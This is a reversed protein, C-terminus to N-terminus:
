DLMAVPLGADPAPPRATALWLLASLAAMGMLVCLHASRRHRYDPPIRLWSEM